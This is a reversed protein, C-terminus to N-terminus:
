TISIGLAPVNAFPNNPTSWGMRTDLEMQVCDRQVKEMTQILDMPTIRLYPM